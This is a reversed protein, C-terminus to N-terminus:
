LVIIIIKKQKKSMLVWKTFAALILNRLIKKIFM